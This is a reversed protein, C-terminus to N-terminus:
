EPHFAQRNCSMGKVTLQKGKNQTKLLCASGRRVACLVSPAAHVTVHVGCDRPCTVHRMDCARKSRMIEVTTVADRSTLFILNLCLSRHAGTARSKNRGIALLHVDCPSHSFQYCPFPPPSNNHLAPTRSPLATPASYPWWVQKTRAVAFATFKFLNSPDWNKLGRDWVCLVGGEESEVRARGWRRDRLEWLTKKRGGRCFIYTNTRTHKRARECTHTLSPTHAHTQTRVWTCCKCIYVYIYVYVFVYKYIHTYIYM